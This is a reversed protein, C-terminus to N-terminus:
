LVKQWASSGCSALSPWCDPTGQPASDQAQDAAKYQMFSLRQIPIEPARLGTYCLQALVQLERPLQFAFVLSQSSLPVMAVLCTTTMLWCSGGPGLSNPLSHGPPSFLLSHPLPTAALATCPAHPLHPLCSSLSM